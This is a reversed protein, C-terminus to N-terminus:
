IPRGVPALTPRPADVEKGTVSTVGAGAEPKVTVNLLLLVVLAVTVLLTVIAAPASVGVVCGCIM